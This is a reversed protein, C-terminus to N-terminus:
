ASLSAFVRRVRELDVGVWRVRWGAKGGIGRAVGGGDANHELVDSHAWGEAGVEKMAAAIGDDDDDGLIGKIMGMGDSGGVQQGLSCGGRSQPPLRRVGMEEPGSRLRDILRRCLAKAVGRGRHEPEVHLSQLSGDPSLFLWAM